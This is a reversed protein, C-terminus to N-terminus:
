NQLTIKLNSRTLSTKSADNTTPALTYLRNYERDFYARSGPIIPVLTQRNIGDYDFVVVKNDNNVVIRHGDMWLAKYEVPINLSSEYYTRRVTEADYLAFKKGSQAMIFRANASFSIFKPDQIILTTFLSPSAKPDTSPDNAPDKYIYVKGQSNVGVAAYFHDDFKAYDLLYTDSSLGSRILFQKDGDKIKVMAKTPDKEDSAAYLIVKEAYAKYSLVNSLVPQINKEKTDVFSLKKTTGDYLYLKDFKKDRMTVTTPNVNLLKNVNISSQPTDRDLVIYEYANGYIHKLIVHRNDSSWEVLEYGQNLTTPTLVSSPLSITKVAVTPDGSDFVDFNTMSGPQLVLLWKRDLSQTSFAPASAYTKQDKPTIKTPFLFPYVLREITSGELNFSRTWTRYGDRKLEIKYPGAPVTLRKDTTGVDKGNLYIKAAEPAADAFILGNQIVEGTKRNFDFGYSQLVLIASTMFIAIGILTYGIYLRRQHKRKKDPDLFDMSNTKIDTSILIGRM